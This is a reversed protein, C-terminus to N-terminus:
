YSLFGTVGRSTIRSWHLNGGGGGGPGLLKQKTKRILHILLLWKINMPTSFFLIVPRLNTTAEFSWSQDRELDFDSCYDSVRVYM